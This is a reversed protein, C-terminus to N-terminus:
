AGGGIQTLWLAETWDDPAIWRARDAIFSTMRVVTGINPLRLDHPCLPATLGLTGTTSVSRM